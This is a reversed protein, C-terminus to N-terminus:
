APLPPAETEGAPLVLVFTSGKGAVGESEVWIRGGHLGVLRRTLALGLGTGQQEKAYSADLQEFSQFVREHDDPKIGIGSDRVLIRVGPAAGNADEPAALVTVRGGDHTFKIANSLLNFLIQKLKGADARIVPVGPAVEASLWISKQRAMADVVSLADRVTAEVNVPAVDLTMRGAEIKSLDLIDNILHLLHRGSGLIQSVFEAQKAELEGYTGNKLVQSFGIIANLPTRLEHSMNALFQSKAESTEEAKEKAERLVAEEYGQRRIRDEREGLEITMQNIASALEGLEDKQRVVVRHAYDGKEIERVGQVLTRV